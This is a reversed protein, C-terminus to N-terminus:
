PLVCRVLYTYSYDNSSTSTGVWIWLYGAYGSSASSTWTYGGWVSPVGNSATSWSPSAPDAPKNSGPDAATTEYLLPLRMGKQVCTQINGEYWSAITGNGGAATNWYALRYAGATSQDTTDDM